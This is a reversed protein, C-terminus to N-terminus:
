QQEAAAKQAALIGQLAPKLQPYRFQYGSELAVKPTVRQSALVVEAMEGMLIKLALEPVPFFVPRNLSEALVKTFEENRVIGPAAGNIPGTVSSTMLSHKILGVIDDLHIWPFWQRGSGLRGGLGLKFPLLMKELAGGDQSLVVGIRVQSVRAGLERARSAENEWDVCIQSLFGNGPASKEDLLEEGRNGYFGIASASILVQPLVAAKKMGGVLNRTGTVRSDRISRKQAETWRSAAVPEGALHIVAEVGTWAEDPPPGVLPDWAIAEIGAAIKVRQPSRSLIRIQHGESLLDRCLRQGILGTAGTVLIKM